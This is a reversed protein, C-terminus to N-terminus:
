KEHFFDSDLRKIVYQKEVSVGVNNEIMLNALRIGDVLVINNKSQAYKVADDSFRATTIFLGHAASSPLAGYFKQLEPRSVVTNLDWRKAQIYIKSFGLKDQRIIGDIGGDRSQHSTKSLELESVGYGMKELLNSVLWEFFGPTQEMIEQLLEDALAKNLTSFAAAIMEDPAEDIIGIPKAPADNVSRKSQVQSEEDLEKETNLYARFGKYRSLVTNDIKKLRKALLKHGDETIRCYGRKAPCILGAKMLYTRTWTIRNRFVTVNNEPLREALEDATLHREKAIADQINSLSHMRDDSLVRLFDDYMEDYKPIAM